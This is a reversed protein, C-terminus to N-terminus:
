KQTVAKGHLSTWREVATKHGPDDRTNLQKMFETDGKLQEIEQLAATTGKLGLGAGTGTADDDLMAEGLEVFLKIISPDNGMGTSDLAKSLEESGFKKIVAKAIDLKADFKDGYEAKLKNTSELLVSEAATNLETAKGSLHDFHTKLIKDVQKQNLGAEFFSAKMKELSADDLQLGEVLDKEVSYKAAEEPRGLKNWFEGWQTDNWNANPAPIKDVGILKQANVFQEALDGFDKVNAFAPNTRHAEPINERWATLLPGDDGGGDGGKDGGTLTTKGGGDGGDGGGDGGGGDSDALGIAFPLITLWGFLSGLSDYWM